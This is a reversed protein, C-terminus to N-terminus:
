RAFVSSDVAVFGIDVCVSGQLVGTWVQAVCSYRGYRLQRLRLNRSRGSM